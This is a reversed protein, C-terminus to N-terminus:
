DLRYRKRLAALSGMPLLALASLPSPTAVAELTFTYGILCDGTCLDLVGPNTTVLDGDIIDFFLNQQNLLQANNFAYSGTSTFFLAEVDNTSSSGLGVFAVGGLLRSAGEYQTVQVSASSVRLSSPLQFTFLDAPDLVSLDGLTGTITNTGETVPGIDTRANANGSGDPPEIYTFARAGTAGLCLLGTAAFPIWSHRLM